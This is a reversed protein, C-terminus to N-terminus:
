DSNQKDHFIRKEIKGIFGDLIRIVREDSEQARLLELTDLASQYDGAKELASALRLHIKKQQPAIELASRYIRAAAAYKKQVFYTRGLYLYADVQQPKEEIAKQLAKEALAFEADARVKNKQPMAQFFANNFHQRGMKEFDENQALAQSLMVLCALYFIILLFIRKMSDGGVPYVPKEGILGQCSAEM